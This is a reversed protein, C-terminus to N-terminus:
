HFDWFEFAHFDLIFFRLIRIRPYGWTKPFVFDTLAGVLVGLIGIRLDMSIGFGLDGSWPFGFIWNWAFGMDSCFIWFTFDWFGLYLCAHFRLDM